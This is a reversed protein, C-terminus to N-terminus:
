HFINRQRANVPPSLATAAAAANGRAAGVRGRICANISARMAMISTEFFGNTFPRSRRESFFILTM